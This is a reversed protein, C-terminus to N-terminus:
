LSYLSYSKLLELLSVKQNSTGIEDLMSSIAGMREACETQATNSQFGQIGQRASDKVFSIVLDWLLSTM